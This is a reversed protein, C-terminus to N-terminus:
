WTSPPLSQHSHSLAMPSPAERQRVIEPRRLPPGVDAPKEDIVARNRGMEKARYLAADARRIIGALNEKSSTHAVGFSCTFLPPQLTTAEALRVIFRDLVRAAEEPTTERLLLIFEEGGYRAFLDETRLHSRLQEAFLVLARDGTEHGFTDNITKFHDLDGMVLSFSEGDNLLQRAASEFTRRNMLGTLGDTAAQLQTHEFTRM